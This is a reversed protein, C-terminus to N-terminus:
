VDCHIDMVFANSMTINGHTDRAVVNAKTIDYNIAMIIAYQNIEVPGYWIYILWLIAFACMTLCM